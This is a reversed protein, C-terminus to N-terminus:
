VNLVTGVFKLLDVKRVAEKNGVVNTKLAGATNALLTAVDVPMGRFAALMALAYFADGAGVTDKVKLVLAPCIVQAEASKGIAGAAGITVWAYNAGLQQRLQELLDERPTLPQGFALRLEREDVVFADARRYKSIINTGYNSSNTQCNVALFKAGREIIRLSEEDLLGHGYDCVVVMDYEPVIKALKSHWNTYDFRKREGRKMLRNISFLKVYEQRQANERLYRRKVPTVFAEDELVEMRINALSERVFDMVGSEKGTMACLTVQGAFNVMHRAIALSGGAYREEHDYFTSLTADKMTVGQVNCFVYEDLIIDGVVLVNLKSFDDVWSRVKDILSIGYKNKLGHSFAAVNEPLTGFFNNLLNTSSYVQGETFYIRGGYQEVVEQEPGINGTVDNEAVAYEKGKAYIDPQVYRVIEHVTVAESLLVYDVIELSALFALRQEDSFYPRGPGKNVYKAATVSVVLVDGQRKADTLHEIHGYHLLDFVGHCLVVKKGDQRLQERIPSFEEKTVIKNEAM